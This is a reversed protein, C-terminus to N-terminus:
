PAITFTVVVTGKLDLTEELQSMREIKVESYEVSLSSVDEIMRLGEEASNVRASLTLGEDLVVEEWYFFVSVKQEIRRIVGFVDVESRYILDLTSLRESVASAKWEIDMMSVSENWKEAVEERKPLSEVELYYRIGALTAAIAIMLVIAAAGYTNVDALLSKKERKVEYSRPLLNFGQKKSAKQLKYAADAM